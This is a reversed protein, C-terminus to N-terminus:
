RLDSLYFRSFKIKKQRVFFTRFSKFSSLADGCLLLVQKKKNEETAPMVLFKNHFTPFTFIKFSCLKPAARAARHLDDGGGSLTGQHPHIDSPAM